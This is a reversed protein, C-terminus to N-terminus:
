ISHARATGGERPVRIGVFKQPWVRLWGQDDKMLEIIISLSLYFRQNITIDNSEIIFRHNNM